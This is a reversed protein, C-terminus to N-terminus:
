LRNVFFEFTRTSQFYQRSMNVTTKEHWEMLESLNKRRLDLFCRFRKDALAPAVM